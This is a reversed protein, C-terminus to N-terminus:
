TLGNHEESLTAWQGVSSLTICKGDASTQAIWRPDSRALNVPDNISSAVNPDVCGWVTRTLSTLPESAAVPSLMGSCMVMLLCTRRWKQLRCALRFGM